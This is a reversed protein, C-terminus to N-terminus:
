GGMAAAAGVLVAALVVRLVVSLVVFLIMAILTMLASRGLTIGHFKHIAFMSVVFGIPLSLFGFLPSILTLVFNLGEVVLAIIVGTKFSPGWAQPSQGIPGSLLKIAAGWLLGGIVIGVLTSILMVTMSPAATAPDM